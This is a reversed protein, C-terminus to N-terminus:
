EEEEGSIIHKFTLPAFAYGEGKYFKSQFEVWHLRLTHLFASLGEMLILISVTLCAWAAFILFLMISGVVNSSQSLGIKMVMNWVVESLQAHALSLAWLRLYSATHSVTGLVYEITHIAQEIFVESFEFEEEEEHADSTEGMEEEHITALHSQARMKANHRSRLVFPKPILMIPVCIVCLILLVVQVTYQGDYMWQNCGPLPEESKLLVMDIFTILVSPACSSGYAVSFEPGSGYHIWKHFVMICLYGFLGLMFIMQPIFEFVFSLTNMFFAQNVVSLIVGFLMHVVGIIISIKMKYSNQFAIKNISVQWIPDFGFPYPDGIYEDRYYPDLTLAETFSLNKVTANHGMHWNSGFINFSKSFIDNYITGTYISFLGMLLLIYRGGFFINWIEGSMKSAILAKERLVMWGAFLLMIFGHGADGFMVAFLFPFTTTTYLAPNVERYSAVGYNDVLTQFGRTFKNTRHFTPPKVSTEMRNLIPQVSTGSKDTGKRLAEQIRGLDAYPIWCEAILCKNTVDLNFMNLTHYIAKIKRVKIFWTRLHKAAAALVRHRHATTQNLVINLDDLRGRVGQGMDKREKSTEPCPYTTARCGDCIKKVKNKLQEGQFFILFVIKHVQDGTVPDELPELIEAQRVFVNGRCVRWLMREFMPMRERTAVGAVFGLQVSGKGEEAPLLNQTISSNPESDQEKFFHQTINLVHKLETLELANKKLTEANANVERLENELKEFTAELDVMERPQPAEPNEGTDLIPVSDKQMEKELYRLQREMEDCRRVEHVFKRQFANVDPNLDRFQVLGIEGIESVCNYSGESSLFLQCLTMSESRFISGM